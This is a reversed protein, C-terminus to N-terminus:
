YVSHQFQPTQLKLLLFWSSNLPLLLMQLSIITFIGTSSVLNLLRFSREPGLYMYGKNNLPM